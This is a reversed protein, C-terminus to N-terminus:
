AEDSRNEKLLFAERHRYGILLRQVWWEVSHMIDDTVGM